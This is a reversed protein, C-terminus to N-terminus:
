GTSMTNIPFTARSVMDFRGIREQRTKAKRVTKLIVQYDPDRTDRFVAVTKGDKDKCWEYGGAEKALPALLIMSKEPYSLNYLNWCHTPLNVRGRWASWESTTYQPNVRIKDVRKGLNAFSGHCNLCRKEVIPGVPERITVNDVNINCKAGAVASGKHRHLYYLDSSKSVDFMSTVPYNITAYTGAFTAGSEVWLRILDHEQKTLKVDYHSGDIKKMLPSSGTGFGRPPHDGDEDYRRTDSIQDYAFLAYYSQTFWENNDSTLVVHGSPKEACHCSVCHRDWVPQIDRPYDIVEPVNPVPTIRSPPRKLALLTNSGTFNPARTRPEHCGVCGQTEGPMVMTYTQMRKVALGKEDLAVFFLGRIPPVEFSASGDPEVPVTGLIRHLTHTGDMSIAGPLSYYSTPKPLDEFVLLKKIEGRKVGKMNRGRYVDTLVLQGVNKQPDVRSPILPERPRPRIVRPDHLMEEAQYVEKLTGQGNLILLSKDEAVLFCDKSLPYPDRFGVDGGLWGTRGLDRKPSIQQLASWGDPGAEPNIIMVHGANERFGHGPSFVAVIKDSEPIPMVDIMVFFSGSPSLANGFLLTQETGDPNMAWLGHFKQPARDVYDWRTYAVRGDPLMAPRHDGVNNASLLRINSGDAEMRHLLGAEVHYCPVFRNGRTSVFMIGGDPLYEPDVDDRDGFTLQRFNKGDPDIECLHFYKTGGKRYSFLLKGGDYHVRPDRFNGNPDDLLITVQKTRLNLKCLRSGGEAYMPKNPDSSWHGFNAYYHGDAYVKRTVFVIEEADGMLGLAKEVLDPGHAPMVPKPQGCFETGWTNGVLVSGLLILWTWLVSITRNWKM